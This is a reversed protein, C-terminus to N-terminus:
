PCDVIGRNSVKNREIPIAIEFRCNTRMNFSFWSLPEDGFGLIDQARRQMERERLLGFNSAESGLFM